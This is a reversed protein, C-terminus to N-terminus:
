KKRVNPYHRDFEQELWERDNIKSLDSKPINVFETGHNAGAISYSGYPKDEGISKWKELRNVTEANVTEATKINYYLKVSERFASRWTSFEDTNFRTENSIKSIVKLKPMISTALDLNKMKKASTLKEKSFLKVGGYGYILDNVPNKSSWIYLCDRDFLGPQYNFQWQDTLYADGDVVYFMDTLSLTAAKKHAEFIGQVGNVRKAYPAKELVRQWNEEANPENYSIFIVSLQDPLQPIVIGMDKEGSTDLNTYAKAVWIKEGGSFKKDLYWVHLYEKDHYPIKYDIYVKLNKLDKNYEITTDPAIFDMEKYGTPHDVFTGKIAWIDYEGSYKKDLMWTFTYEFDHYQVNDINIEDFAYGTLDPNSEVKMVPSVEGIFKTGTIEKSPKVKVAWIDEPATKTHKKDLMWVHEYQMDHYQVDYDVNYSLKPLFPNYEYELQPSVFEDMIKVGSPKKVARLKVAWIDEPATETHKKDLMWVHEFSLDYYPIVYDIDYNSKPLAPNYEYELQPSVFEDMIKVGSPKKVARAKVAWIDEPATKTHKRDLMWVHEFSLDHYPIVYDIDYNAKPLAPNYEYVMSPSVEGVIKTGTPDNTTIIKFAWIEKELSHIRHKKDLLWMHDYKFDRWPIEYDVDYKIKPLDPNYVIKFEPTITGLWMLPKPKRYAPTFKVVWINEHPTYKTDLLYACENALDYYPPCLSDVDLNMDPLEENYEINVNPTVYGMDKTGKIPKGMPRCSIAWIKDPLPNFRPDMYWVLEHQAEWPDPQYDPMPDDHFNMTRDLDQNKRWVFKPLVIDIHEYGNDTEWDVPFYKAIWDGNFKFVVCKDTDPIEDIFYFPKSDKLWPNQIIFPEDDPGLSHLDLDYQDPDGTWEIEKVLEPDIQIIEDLM